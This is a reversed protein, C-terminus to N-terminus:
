MCAYGTICPRAIDDEAGMDVGMRPDSEPRLRDAVYPRRPVPRDAMALAGEERAGPLAARWCDRVMDWISTSPTMASSPMCRSTLWM